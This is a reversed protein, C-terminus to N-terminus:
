KESDYDEITALEQGARDLACSRVYESLSLGRVKAAWNIIEYENRTLRFAMRLDRLKTM